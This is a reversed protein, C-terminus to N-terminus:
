FVEFESLWMFGARGAHGSSPPQWVRVGATTVAAPFTHRSCQGETQEKVSVQTVWTTGDWTQVEYATSTRYCEYFAWWLAVGSVARPAPYRLSVWHPQGSEESLWTCGATTGGGADMKQGDSVVQWAQWGAAATVSDVSLLAGDALAQVPPCSFSLSWALSSEDLACDDLSVEVTNRPALGEALRALDIEILGQKPDLLKLSVGPAGAAVRRGNLSVALSEPILANLEDQVLLSLARPASEVGGLDLRAGSGVEKGDVTCRRLAPPTVDSLDVGAPVNLVLLTRGNRIKGVEIRVRLVDGATEVVAPEWADAATRYLVKGTGPVLPLTLEVDTTTQLSCVATRPTAEAAAVAAIMAALGLVLMLAQTRRRPRSM